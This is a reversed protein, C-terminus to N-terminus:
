PVRRLAREVFRSRQQAFQLFDQMAATQEAMTQRQAEINTVLQDVRRELHDLSASRNCVTVTLQELQKTIQELREDTRIQYEVIQQESQSIPVNPAESLSDIPDPM